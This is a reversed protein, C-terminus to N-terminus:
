SVILHAFYTRGCAGGDDCQQEKPHGPPDVGVGYRGPLIGVPLTTEVTFSLDKKPRVRVVDIPTAASLGDLVVSYQGRKRDPAKGDACAVPAGSITM